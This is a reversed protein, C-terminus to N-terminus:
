YHCTLCDNSANKAKHCNVCFGMNLDVVRQAVTQEAVNGHCTSCDIKARIHPAHNFRVHAHASYDYVREWALDIGKQEYAAIQKILPRETAIQSHCIMCTKVSPLGAVPGEVVSEHCYETCGVKNAVHIKHPFPFPQEARRRVGFFDSVAAAVTPHAPTFVTTRRTDDAQRCAVIAATVVAAMGIALTRAISNV